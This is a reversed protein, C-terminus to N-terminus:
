KMSATALYVGRRDTQIAISCVSISWIQKLTEHGDIWALMATAFCWPASSRLPHDFSLWPWWIRGISGQLTDKDFAALLMDKNFPQSNDSGWLTWFQLNRALAPMLCPMWDSKMRVLCIRSSIIYRFILITGGCPHYICIWHTRKVRKCWTM